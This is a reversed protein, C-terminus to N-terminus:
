TMQHLNYWTILIWSAWNWDISETMLWFRWKTLIPQEEFFMVKPLFM